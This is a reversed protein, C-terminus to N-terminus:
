RIQTMGACAPPVWSTPKSMWPAQVGAPGEPNGRARSRRLRSATHWDRTSQNLLNSDARMAKGRAFRTPTPRAARRRHTASASGHLIRSLRHRALPEPPADTLPAPPVGGQPACTRIENVFHVQNAGKGGPFDEGWAAVHGVRKVVSNTSDGPREEGGLAEQQVGCPRTQRSAPAGRSRRLRRGAEGSLPAPLRQHRSAALGLRRRPLFWVQPLSLALSAFPRSRRSRVGAM